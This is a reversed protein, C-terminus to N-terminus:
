SITLLPKSYAVAASYSSNFYLKYLGNLSIHVINNSNCLEAYWCVYACYVPALVGRNNGYHM